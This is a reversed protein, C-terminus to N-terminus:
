GHAMSSGADMYEIFRLTHGSDRFHEAMPMIEHDNVCRKVVMNIKITNFGARQAAAIGDLVTVVLVDSDTM